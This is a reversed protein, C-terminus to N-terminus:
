GVLLVGFAGGCSCSAAGRFTAAEEEEEKKTRGNPRRLEAPQAIFFLVFPVKVNVVQRWCAPLVLQPEGIPAQCSGQGFLGFAVVLLSLYHGL